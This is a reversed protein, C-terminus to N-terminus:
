AREVCQADYERVLGDDVGISFLHAIDQAVVQKAEPIAKDRAEQCRELCSSFVLDCLEDFALLKRHEEARGELFNAALPEDSMHAFGNGEGGVACVAFSVSDLM